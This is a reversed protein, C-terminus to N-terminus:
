ENIKELFEENWDKWLLVKRSFLNQYLSVDEKNPVALVIDDNQYIIKITEYQLNPIYMWDRNLSYLVKKGHGFTNNLKGAETINTAVLTGHYGYCGVQHVINLGHRQNVMNTFIVPNFKKYQSFKQKFYTIDNTTLNDKIIGFNM